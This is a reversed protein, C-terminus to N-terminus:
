ADDTQSAQENMKSVAIPELDPLFEAIVVPPIGLAAGMTFAANMDWGIVRATMGSAVRLQGGMKM